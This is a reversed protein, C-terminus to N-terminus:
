FLMKLKWKFFYVVVLVVWVLGFLLLFSKGWVQLLLTQENKAQLILVMAVFRGSGASCWCYLFCSLPCSGANKDSWSLCVSVWGQLSINFGYLSPMCLFSSCIILFEKLSINFLILSVGVGGGRYQPSVENGLCKFLCCEKWGALESTSSHNLEVSNASHQLVVWLEAQCM